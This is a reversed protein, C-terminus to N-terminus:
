DGRGAHLTATPTPPVWLLHKYSALRQAIKTVTVHSVLCAAAISEKSLGPALSSGGSSGSGTLMGLERCVFFVAGAVVSPPMVDCVIALGDARQVVGRVLDTVGPALDMHSCFRGVFDAPVSSQADADQVIAHFAHCAKTLQSPKMDFMAAVEKHSRPVGCKKCAVYMSVAIIAARNAGRTIRGDSVRKYLNKAEELICSPLSHTSASVALQDFINCLVRERHSFSIWVQCRQLTRRTDVSSQTTAAAALTRNSWNSAARRPAYAVVSGLSSFLGNSPPCCRTTNNARTDESSYCRWEATYDLQRGAVSNCSKCVWFGDHLLVVSAPAGCHECKGDAAGDGDAAADGDGDAHMCMRMGRMMEWIPDDCAIDGHGDSVVPGSAAATWADMPQPPDTM